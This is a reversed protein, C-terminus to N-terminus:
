DNTLEEAEYQIWAPLSSQTIGSSATKGSQVAKWKNIADNLCLQGTELDTQSAQILSSAYPKNKSVVLWIFPLKPYGLLQLVWQYMAAQVHYRYKGAVKNFASPSASGTTTKLDLIFGEHTEDPLRLYDYRTQLMIGDCEVLASVEAQGGSGLLGANEGKALVVDAMGRVEDLKGTAFATLDQSEAEAKAEKAERTRFSEFPLEIATKLEGQLILEHAATGFDYSDKHEGHELEWLAEEPLMTLLNKALTSSLPRPTSLGAHYVKAPIDPYIGPKFETM